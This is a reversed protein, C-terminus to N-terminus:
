ETLTEDLGFEGSSNAIANQPLVFLLLREFSNNLMPTGLVKGFKAPFCWHQLRKKDFFLSWCLHNVTFNAFNKLDGKRCFVEPPQRQVFVPSRQPENQPSTISQDNPM